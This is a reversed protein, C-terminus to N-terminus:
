ESFAIIEGNKFYWSHTFHNAIAGCETPQRGRVRGTVLIKDKELQKFTMDQFHLGTWNNRMISPFTIFYRENFQGPSNMETWDIAQTLIVVDAPGSGKTQLLSYIQELVKRDNKEQAQLSYTCISLFLVLIINLIFKVM